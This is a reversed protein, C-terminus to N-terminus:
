SNVQLPNKLKIIANKQVFKALFCDVIVTSLFLHEHFVNLIIKGM